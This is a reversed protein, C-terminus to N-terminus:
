KKAYVGREHIREGTKGRNQLFKREDETRKLWAEHQKKLRATKAKRELSLIGGPSKSTRRRSIEKQVRALRTFLRNKRRINTEKKHEEKLVNRTRRLPSLLKLDLKQESEPTPTSEPSPTFEPYYHSPREGSPM